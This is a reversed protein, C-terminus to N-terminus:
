WRVSSFQTVGTGLKGQPVPTTTDSPKLLFYGGVVGGIVVVAGGLAWPWVTSGKKESELTVQISRHEGAALNIEAAYPAKAPATVRIRHAGPTLSGEWRGSGLPKEDVMVADTEESPAITLHAETAVIRLAVDVTMASQGVVEIPADYPAYGAMEVRLLHKGLDVPVPEAFPARGRAEGDIVVLAGAPQVNIRVPSFFSRLADQTARAQALFEPTVLPGADKLFRAVLTSARAYHRMEKECAAMSWLIRPDHSADYAAGYKTAAGAYDHDDFLLKGAEYAAKADGTLTKSLPAPADARAPASASALVLALFAISAGRCFRNGPHHSM